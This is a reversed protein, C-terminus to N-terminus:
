NLLCINNQILTQSVRVDETYRSVSVHQCFSFLLGSRSIWASLMRALWLGSCEM